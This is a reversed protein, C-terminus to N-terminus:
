ACLFGGDVPVLAGHVYSALDSALVLAIRAVEDPQGPRNLPLRQYFDYGTKIIGPKKVVGKLVDKTGPTIIAGPLIVNVRFGSGGYERALSRSLGIVGTKSMNYVALDRKFPLIAEISSVNIIVGGRKGRGKIMQQCMWFVSNLNVDLVSRLFEEDVELLDRFPYIGANNVLIDPERGELGAWLRDVEAKRSLDVVHGDLRVNFRALEERVKALGERNLDVLDLDAGAEAFRSCVARGIGAAAGTVLARKGALSILEGVTKTVAM